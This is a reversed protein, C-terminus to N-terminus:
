GRPPLPIFGSTRRAYAAYEPRSERMRKETLRKGSGWVLLYTMVLPSVIAALGLWSGCGILFIGWWVCADGFYNPHRTYRWLGRDMIQGRNAPVARFRGLQWDGVAEFFLGCLWLLGGIVLLPVAAWGGSMGMQIPLSVLWILAGQGMYVTGLVYWAGRGRLMAAYRLDEGAGRGRWSIYAALRAGWVVTVAVLLARRAGTGHGASVLLAVVAVVAFGLGWAVDAVKHQRLVMGAAFAALAVVLVAAASAGATIGAVAGL